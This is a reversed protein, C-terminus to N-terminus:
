WRRKGRLPIMLGASPLMHTGKVGLRAPHIKPTFRNGIRIKHHDCSESDILVHRTHLQSSMYSSPGLDTNQTYPAFQLMRCSVRRSGTESKNKIIFIISKIGWAQSPRSGKKLISTVRMSLYGLTHKFLAAPLWSLFKLSQRKNGTSAREDYRLRRRSPCDTLHIQQRCLSPV